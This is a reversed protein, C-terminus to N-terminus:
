TQGLSTCNSDFLSKLKNLLKLLLETESRSLDSGLTATLPSDPTESNQPRTPSSVACLPFVDTAQSDAVIAITTRKPVIMPERTTNVAILAATGHSFRVLSTAIVLGKLLFRRSPLVLLDGDSFQDSRVSIVEEAGPDLIYDASAVLRQQSAEPVSSDDTETLEMDPLHCSIIASASSLFDWGLILQHTCLPLVACQIHHRIGDIFVRVTCFGTPEIAGQNASCLSPGTYPTRVKRLKSCLNGDIVSISAGTDVLADIIIGEVEVRVTNSPREPPTTLKGM